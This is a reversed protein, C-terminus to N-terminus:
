LVRRACVFRRNYYGTNLPSIVVGGRHSSSHIFEGGGIYIGVHSIGSRTTHFFVLDGPQLESYEVPVGCSVQDKSGHPLNIGFLAYVAMVFGSCDVGGTLSSGSWVYPTGLYKMAEEVVARGEPTGEFSGIPVNPAGYRFGSSSGGSRRGSSPREEPINLPIRLDRGIRLVSRVELGNRAMLESQTVGFARAVESLTDGRRVTYIHYPKGDEFRGDISWKGALAAEQALDPTTPAPPSIKSFDFIESRWEEGQNRPLDPLPVIGEPPKSGNPAGGVPLTGRYGPILLLQGPQVASDQMLGNAELLKALPIGHARAISELTDGAQVVYGNNVVRSTLSPAQAQSPIIIEAGVQLVSNENLGNAKLLSDCSVGFRRAISWPSDGAQVTYRVGQPSTESTTPEAGGQYVYGPPPIKLVQGSAILDDEKLGNYELLALVDVNFRHAILHPNDGPLVTYTIEGGAGVSVGGGGGGSSVEPSPIAIRQGVRLLPEKDIPWGNAAYLEELSVGFHIAISWANDGEKVTYLVDAKAGSPFAFLLVAASVAVSLVLRSIIKPADRMIRSAVVRVFRGIRGESPSLGDILYTLTVDLSCFILV